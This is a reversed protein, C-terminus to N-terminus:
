VRRKRMLSLLGSSACMPQSSKAAMAPAKRQEIAWVVATKWRSATGMAQACFIASLESFLSSSMRTGINEVTMRMATIRTPAKLAIEITSGFDDSAIRPRSAPATTPRAKAECSVMLFTKPATISMTSWGKVSPSTMLMPLWSPLTSDSPRREVVM